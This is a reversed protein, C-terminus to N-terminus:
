KLKELLQKITEGTSLQFDPKVLSLKKWTDIAGTEDDLDHYQVVGINFLAQTNEPNQKIAERFAEMSKEFKGDRRYAIGLDQYVESKHDTLITLKLYAEVAKKYDGTEFYANALQMWTEVNNPDEAINEKLHSIHQAMDPISTGQQGVRGLEEAITSSNYVTFVVGSLFGFLLSVAVITLRSANTIKEIM